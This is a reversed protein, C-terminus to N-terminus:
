NYENKIFLQKIPATIQEFVSTKSTIIEANTIISDNIKLISGTTSILPFHLNIKSIFYGGKRNVNIVNSITQIETEIQENNLDSINNFNIRVKDGLKVKNIKNAPIQVFGFISDKEIKIHVTANVTPTYEFYYSGILLTIIVLFITTIGIRIIRPPIQGIINRVKESRLEINESEKAM